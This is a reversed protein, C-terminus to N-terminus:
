GILNYIVNVIHEQRLQCIREVYHKIVKKNNLWCGYRCLIYYYKAFSMSVVGFSKIFGFCLLIVSHSSMSFSRFSRLFLAIIQGHDSAPVFHFMNDPIWM